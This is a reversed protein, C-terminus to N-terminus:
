GVIEFRRDGISSRWDVIELRRDGISSRWDVIELRRDGFLSELINNTIAFVSKGDRRGLIKCNVVGHERESTPLPGTVFRRGLLQAGDRQVDSFATSRSYIRAAGSGRSTTAEQPRELPRPGV